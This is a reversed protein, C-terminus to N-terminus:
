KRTASKWRVKEGLGHSSGRITPTPVPIPLELWAKPQNPAKMETPEEGAEKLLDNAANPLLIKIEPVVDPPMVAVPQLGRAFSKEEPVYDPPLIMQNYPSSLSNLSMKKPEPVPDIGKPEITKSMPEPQIKKPVVIPPPEAVTTKPAPLAETPFVIAIPPPQEGLIPYPRWQTQYHGYPTQYVPVPQVPCPAGAQLDAVAFLSAAISIRASFRSLRVFM